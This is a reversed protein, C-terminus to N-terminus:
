AIECCGRDENLGTLTGHGLVFTLRYLDPIPCKDTEQGKANQRWTYYLVGV